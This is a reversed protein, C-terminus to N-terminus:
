ALIKKIIEIPETHEDRVVIMRRYDAPNFYKEPCSTHCGCILLVGDLDPHDYGVWRIV